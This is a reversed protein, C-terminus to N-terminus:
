ASLGIGNDTYIHTFVYGRKTKKGVSDPRPHISETNQEKGMKERESKRVRSLRKTMHRALVPESHMSNACLSRKHM